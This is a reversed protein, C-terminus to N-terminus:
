NGRFKSAYVSSREINEGSAFYTGCLNLFNVYSINRLSFNSNRSSAHFAQAFGSSKATLAAFCGAFGSKRLFQAVHSIAHFGLTKTDFPFQWKKKRLM